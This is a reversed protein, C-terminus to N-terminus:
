DIVNTWVYRVRFGTVDSRQTMVYYMYVYMHVCTNSCVYVYVYVCIFVTVITIVTLYVLRCIVTTKRRDTQRDTQLQLLCPVSFLPESMRGTRGCCSSSRQLTARCRHAERLLSCTAHKSVSDMTNVSLLYMCYMCYNKLRTCQSQPHM